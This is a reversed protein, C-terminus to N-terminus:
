WQAAQACRFTFPMRQLNRWRTSAIMPAPHASNWSTGTSAIQFVSVVRTQPLRHAGLPRSSRTATLSSFLGARRSRRAPSLDDPIFGMLPSMAALPACSRSPCCGENPPLATRFLFNVAALPWFLFARRFNDVVPWPVERVGMKITRAPAGPNWVRHPTPNNGPRPVANALIENERVIATHRADCGMIPRHRICVLEHSCLAPTWQQPQWSPSQM